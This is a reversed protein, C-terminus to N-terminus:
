IALDGFEEARLGSNRKRFLKAQLNTAKKEFFVVRASVSAELEAPTFDTTCPQPLM